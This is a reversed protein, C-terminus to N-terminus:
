TRPSRSPDPPSMYLQPGQLHTSRKTLQVIVSAAAGSSSSKVMSFPAHQLNLSSERSRSRALTGAGVVVGVYTTM